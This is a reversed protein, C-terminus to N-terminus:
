LSSNKDANKNLKPNANITIARDVIKPVKAAINIVLNLKGPTWTKLAKNKDGSIKGPM